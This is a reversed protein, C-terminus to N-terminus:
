RNSHDPPLAVFLDLRLDKGTTDIMDDQFLVRYVIFFTCSLFPQLTIQQGGGIQTNLIIVFNM